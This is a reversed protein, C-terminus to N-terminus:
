SSKMNGTGLYDLLAIKLGETIEDVTETGNQEPKFPQLLIDVWGSVFAMSLAPIHELVFWHEKGDWTLRIHQKGKQFMIYCSGFTEPYYKEEVETFGNELLIPQITDRIREFAEKM